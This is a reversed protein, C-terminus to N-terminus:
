PRDARCVIACQWAVGGAGPGGAAGAGGAGGGPYGRQQRGSAAAPRAAAPGRALGFRRLAAHHRCWDRRVGPGGRRRRLPQDPARGGGRRHRGPPRPPCTVLSCPSTATGVTDAPSPTPRRLRAPRAPPGTVPCPPSAAPARKRCSPPRWCPPSGARRSSPSSATSPGRRCRGCRATPASSAGCWARSATPATPPWCGTPPPSSCAAQPWARALSITAAELDSWATAPRLLGAVEGPFEVGTRRGIGFRRLAEELRPKGYAQAIKAMGINSSKALVETLGLWGHPSTDSITHGGLFYRGNECFLISQPTLVGDDLAAAVVLPKITSGPEFIDTVIRNRRRDAKDGGPGQPNGGNPNFLPVMAMALVDATAVDLVVASAARARTAHVARALAEQAIHQIQLDLTLRVDSGRSRQEPDLGGALVAQGRADRVAPVTQPEGLLEADFQKEIGELGRGDLGAFGVVQAGVERNPYFRRPEKTISVGPVGLARVREAMEPSVQRKLWVFYRESALRDYVERPDIGLAKGLLRAAARPDTLAAPNAYVSPVDVSIALPAGSRDYINGRRAPIKVTNLYQDRALRALHEHQQVQLQAARVAM